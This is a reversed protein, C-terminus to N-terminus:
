YDIPFQSMGRLKHTHKEFIVDFVKEVKLLDFNGCKGNEIHLLEEIM